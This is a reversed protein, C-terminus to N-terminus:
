CRLVSRFTIDQYFRNISETPCIIFIKDFQDKELEVLHKLLCSKGSNRKGVLAVTKNILTLNIISM